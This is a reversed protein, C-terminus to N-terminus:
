QIPVFTNQAKQMVVSGSSSDSITVTICFNAYGSYETSALKKQNYVIANETSDYLSQENTDHVKDGDTDIWADTIAGSYSGYSGTQLNMTVTNGKKSVFSVCDQGMRAPGFTENEVVYFYNTAAMATMASTAVMAATAMTVAFKKFM